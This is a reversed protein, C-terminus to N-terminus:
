RRVIPKYVVPVGAAPVPMPQIVRWPVGNILFKDGVEPVGEGVKMTVQLDGEIALKQLIYKTPVGKVVAGTLTIPLAAIEPGPNGAPGTGPTMKILAIPADDTGQHFQTLVNGAIGAIKAYDFKAAM